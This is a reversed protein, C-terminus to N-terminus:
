NVIGTVKGNEFMVVTGSDYTWVVRQSNESINIPNGKALRVENPNMRKIVAGREIEEWYNIQINTRFILQMVNDIYQKCLSHFEDVYFKDQPKKDFNIKDFVIVKMAAFVGKQPVCRINDILYFLKGEAAMMQLTFTYHNDANSGCFTGRIKLTKQALNYEPKYKEEQGQCENDLAWLVARGILDKDGFQSTASGECAYKNNKREMDFSVQAYTESCLLTIYLLLLTIVKM